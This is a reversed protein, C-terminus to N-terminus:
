LVEDLKRLMLKLPGIDELVKRLAAHESTNGHLRVHTHERLAARQNAVQTVLQSARVGALSLKSKADNLRAAVENMIGEADRSAKRAALLMDSTKRVGSVGAVSLYANLLTEWRDKCLGYTRPARTDLNLKKAEEPYTSVLHGPLEDAITPWRHLGHQKVLAILALDECPIWPVSTSISGAVAVRASFGQTAKSPSSAVSSPSALQNPAATGYSELRQKATLGGTPRPSSPASRSLTNKQDDVDHRLIDYLDEMDALRTSLYIVHNRLATDHFKLDAHVAHALRDTEVLTDKLGIRPDKHKPTREAAGGRSRPTLSGSGGGGGGGSGSGLAAGAESLNGLHRKAEHSVRVSAALLVELGALLARDNGRRVGDLDAVTHDIRGLALKLDHVAQMVGFLAREASKSHKFPGQGTVGRARRQGLDKLMAQARVTSASRMLPPVDSVDVTQPAAPPAAAAPSPAPTTAAPAFRM